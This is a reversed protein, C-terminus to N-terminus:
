IAAVHKRRRRAAATLGALGVAILSATAPEPVPRATVYGSALIGDTRGNGSIVLDFTNVGNVFNAGVPITLTHNRQWNGGNPLKPDPDIYPDNFLAPNAAAIDGFPTFVGNLAFGHWYNDFWFTPLTLAATSAVYGTLDFTTRFTYKYSPNENPAGAWLSGSSTPSIYFASGQPTNFPDTAWGGPNASVQAAAGFTNSCNASPASMNLRECKVQWTSNTPTLNIQQAGIAVPLATALALLVLPRIM